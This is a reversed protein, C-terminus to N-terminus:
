RPLAGLRDGPAAIGPVNTVDQHWVTGLTPDPGGTAAARLVTVAGADTLTFVDESRAGIALDPGLPGLDAGLRDGAESGGPFGGTGQAFLRSGVPSIASTTTQLAMVLGVDAVTGANEDPAAIVLWPRSGRPRTVTLAAGFGDGAEVTDPMDPTNQHLTQAGIGVPGTTGGYIVFAAGAGPGAYFGEGPAGAALDGPGGRGLAGIAVGEGFRDGAEVTDPVGGSDQTWVSDGAVTIGAASGLLVSV